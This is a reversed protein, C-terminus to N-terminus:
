RQIVSFQSCEHSRFSIKDKWVSLLYLLTSKFSHKYPLARVQTLGPYIHPAASMWMLALYDMLGAPMTTLHETASSAKQLSISSLIIDRGQKLLAILFLSFLLLYFSCTCKLWLLIVCNFNPTWFNQVFTDWKARYLLFTSFILQSFQLVLFASWYQDMGIKERKCEGIDWNSKFDNKSHINYIVMGSFQSLTM